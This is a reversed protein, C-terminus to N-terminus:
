TPVPDQVLSISKLRLKKNPYYNKKVTVVPHVPIIVAKDGPELYPLDESQHGREIRKPYEKSVPRVKNWTEDKQEKEKQSVQRIKFCDYCIDLQVQDLGILVGTSQCRPCEILKWQCENTVCM